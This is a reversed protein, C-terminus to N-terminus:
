QDAMKRIRESAQSMRAGFARRRAGSEPSPTRTINLRGIPTQVDYSRPMAARRGSGSVAEGARGIRESAARLGSRMLQMLRAKGQEAAGGVAKAGSAVKSAVRQVGRQAATYQGGINRKVAEKAANVRAARADARQKALTNRRAVNRAALDARRQREEARRMPASRTPTERTFVGGETEDSPLGSYEIKQGGYTVKRGYKEDDKKAETIIQDSSELMVETSTTFDLLDFAEEITHGYDRLEWFISEVVEEIDESQMYDIFRLNDDLNSDVRPNYLDSYAESLIFAM